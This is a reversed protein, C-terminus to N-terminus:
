ATRFAAIHEDIEDSTFHSFTRLVNTYDGLVLGYFHRAVIADIESQRLNGQIVNDVMSHFGPVLSELAMINPIRVKRLSSLTIHGTALHSRLLFEFTTASMVGLFGRIWKPDRGFFHVVGLSNGTIFGSPIITAIIRRKQSPRSVDRWAIREYNISKPMARIPNCVRLPTSDITLFREVMRGKVFFPGVGSENVHEKLGTEDWERGAWLADGELDGWTGLAQGFSASLKVAGSGQSVPIVCGNGCSYTSAAVKGEDQVSLGRGHRTLFASHSKGPKGFLGSITIAQTDASDFLKLEAPYYRIRNVTISSLLRKRIRESQDDAFFSAPLVIGWISESKALKIAVDCGVRSLNIGWGAFMRKPISEPYLHGIIEGYDRLSRTYSNKDNASLFGLERQDPKLIEWPPNTIVVDFEGWGSAAKVMADEKSVSLSFATSSGLIREIEPRFGDLDDTNIDNASIEWFVKSSVRDRWLAIFELILRGDGCFPDCVSITKKCKFEDTACEILDLSLLRAVSRATYYSGTAKKIFSPPLQQAQEGLLGLHQLAGSAKKGMLRGHLMGNSPRGPTHVQLLHTM